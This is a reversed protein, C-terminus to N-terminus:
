FLLPKWTFTFLKSLDLTFFHIATKLNIIIKKYFYGKKQKLHVCELM